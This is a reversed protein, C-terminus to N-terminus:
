KGLIERNTTQKERKEISSFLSISQMKSEIQRCNWQINNDKPNKKEEESKKHQNGTQMKWKTKCRNSTYQNRTWIFEIVIICRNPSSIVAMAKLYSVSADETILFFFCFFLSYSTLLYFYDLIQEFPFCHLYIRFNACM